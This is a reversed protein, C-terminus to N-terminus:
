VLKWFSPRAGTPGDAIRRSGFGEHAVLAEDVRRRRAGEFEGLDGANDFVEAISRGAGDLGSEVAHFQMAGVAVQEVSKQAVSSVM